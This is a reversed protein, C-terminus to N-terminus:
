YNDPLDNELLVVPNKLHLDEIKKWVSKVSMLKIIKKKDVIGQELGKTRESKGILVIYDVGSLLRGLNEHISLTRDGLDVIGPTVFVRPRDFNELLAIAEQFGDVNSNYADDILTMDKMEKIELRHAVPQIDAIVAVINTPKVGLLYSMTAAALINQVTSRGLLKTKTTHKEGDLILIFSSGENTQRIDQISFKEDSFGYTTINQSYSPLASKIFDNDGNIVGFGNSPLSAILEFKAQTTNELSSFTEIHQENIGTIIGYKPHVMDCIEKIEGKKYAGMECLFYEYSNDLELDIVKAIGLPTNYSGPTRLVKHKTRLIQYLFEKVSTKGYSGTIGVIKLNPFSALKKETAAKIKNKKYSLYPLLLLYSIILFLYAQTALLLGLILGIWHLWLTLFITKMITLFVALTLIARAKPTAVFHKKDEIKRTFFHAIVWKLFKGIRYEDLQFIHLQLKYPFLKQIM